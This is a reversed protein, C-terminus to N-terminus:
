PARYLFDKHYIQLKGYKRCEPNNSWGTSQCTVEKNGFLVYHKPKLCTVTVPSGETVDGSPLVQADDISLAPCVRESIQVNTVSKSGSEHFLQTPCLIDFYAAPKVTHYKWM